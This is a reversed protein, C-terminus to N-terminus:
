HGSYNTQTDCGLTWKRSVLSELKSKNQKTQNQKKIEQSTRKWVHGGGFFFIIIIIIIAKKGM